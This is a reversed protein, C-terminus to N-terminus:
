ALGLLAAEVERLRDAEGRMGVIADNYLFSEALRVIAYALTEAGIPSSFAGTRMEDAIVREIAAVIRPQVIGGSSTLVRLAREQERALLAALGHNGALERNLADFCALLAPAGSGGVQKRIAHLREEALEALVEGLLLERTGFWRHMTARALGLDKALAQVDVREGELFRRRALAMAAERTTAAPRGPRGTAVPTM